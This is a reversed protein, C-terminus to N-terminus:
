LLIKLHEQMDVTTGYENLTQFILLLWITNLNQYQKM